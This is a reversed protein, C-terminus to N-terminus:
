SLYKVYLEFVMMYCNNWIKNILKVYMVKDYWAHRTIQAVIPVATIAITSASELISKASSLSDSIIGSKPKPSSIQSEITSIDSSLEDKQEQRLEEKELFKKLANILITLEKKTEQSITVTQNVSSSAQSINSNSM